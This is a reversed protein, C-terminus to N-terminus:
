VDRHVGGCGTGRKYEVSDAFTGFVSQAEILLKVPIVLLQMMQVMMLMLVIMLAPAMMLLMLVVVPLRIM